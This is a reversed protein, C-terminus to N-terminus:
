PEQNHWSDTDRFNMARAQQLLTRNKISKCKRTSLAFIFYVIKHRKLIVTLVRAKYRRSTLGVRVLPKQALNTYRYYLHNTNMECLTLVHIQCWQTVQM